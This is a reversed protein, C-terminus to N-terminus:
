ALTDKPFIATAHQRIGPTLYLLEEPVSLFFLVPVLQRLKVPAKPAFTQQHAMSGQTHSLWRGAQLKLSGDRVKRGATGRLSSRRRPLRIQRAQNGVCATRFMVWCISREGSKTVLESELMNEAIGDKSAGLWGRTRPPDERCLLSLPFDALHVRTPGPSPAGSLLQSSLINTLVASVGLRLM